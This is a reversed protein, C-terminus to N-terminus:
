SWIPIRVPNVVFGVDVTHSVVGETIKRSVDHVLDVEIGPAQTYLGHLFKPLVYAGVSQHCGVKFRGFIETTSRYIGKRVEDWCDLLAFSKRYFLVGEETPVV